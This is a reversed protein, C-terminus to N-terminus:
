AWTRPKSKASYYGMIAKQVGENHTVVEVDKEGAKAFWV